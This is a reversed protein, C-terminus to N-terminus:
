AQLTLQITNTFTYLDLDHLGLDQLQIQIYAMVGAHIAIDLGFVSYQFDVNHSLCQLNL